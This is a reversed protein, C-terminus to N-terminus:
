HLYALGLNVDLNALFKPVGVLANASVVLSLSESLEIAVGGGAGLLLPGGVVTDKCGSAPCGSLKGVSVVHRIQGAGAALSFFPTVTGPEGLFWTAKLLAAVAFSSPKCTGGKCASPNKSVEGGKVSTAGSVLQFRGQLSLLMSDTVFYGFEPSIHLLRAMSVGSSTLKKGGDDTRNAEPQGSHYGFGTGVSLSLWISGGGSAAEEGGGSDGGESPGTAGNIIGGEGLAIVHPEAQSGDQAVSQGQDNFAVIYYTVMSGNTAEAPIQGQYWDNNLVDLEHLTYEKTGEARYAVVVRAAALTAPAQVKVTIAQGAIGERVPAHVLSGTAVPESV